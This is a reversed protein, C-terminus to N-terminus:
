GNMQRDIFLHSSVSLWYPLTIDIHREQKESNM